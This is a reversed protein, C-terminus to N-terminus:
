KLQLNLNDVVALNFGQSLQALPFIVNFANYEVSKFCATTYNQANLLKFDHRAFDKVDDRKWFSNPGSIQSFAM